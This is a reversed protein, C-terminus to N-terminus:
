LADFRWFDGSSQRFPDYIAGGYPVFFEPLMFM